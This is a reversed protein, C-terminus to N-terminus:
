KHCQYCTKINMTWNNRNKLTRGGLFHRDWCTMPWPAKGTVWHSSQLELCWAGQQTSNCSVMPPPLCLMGPGLVKQTCSWMWLFFSTVNLGIAPHGRIRFLGLPLGTKGERSNYPDWAMEGRCYICRRVTISHRRRMVHMRRHNRPKPQLRGRHSPLLITTEHLEVQGVKKKKKQRIVPNM